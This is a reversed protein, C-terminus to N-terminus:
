AKMLNELVIQAAKSPCLLGNKIKEQIAEYSLLKTEKERIKKNLKFILQQNFCELAQNERKKQFDRTKKQHLLFKKLEQWVVGVGEKEKSSALLVPPSWKKKTASLHFVQEFIKKNLKGEHELKGDCKNIILLDVLELIGRKMGQLEDGTAPMHLLLFADVMQGVKYESQGVGLTEIIIIDYGAAEMLLCTEYTKLAGGGQEGKSPSPRVFVNEHRSLSNMRVKDGLISGGRKPSSPDITIVAIKKKPEFKLIEEGFAEIFTSKGVGPIGTIGIRYSKGTSPMLEDLLNQAILLDDERYSELLSIAKALHKRSGKLIGEITENYNM